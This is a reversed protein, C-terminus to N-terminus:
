QHSFRDRRSQIEHSGRALLKTRVTQLKSRVSTDFVKDGIHVVLGGILEPNQRVVLIPKKGLAAALTETLAKRQADDLPSATEVLVRQLNAQQERLTRYAVAILRVLGLRDKRNLLRLFDLFLPSSRGEFLKMLVADRARKNIAASSLFSELEPVHPFVDKGLSRFEDGILDAEGRRDAIDLLAEAYTRAIRGTVRSSDTRLLMDEYLHQAHEMEEPSLAGPTNVLDVFTTNM